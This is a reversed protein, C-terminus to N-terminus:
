KGIYKIKNNLIKQRKVSDIKIQKITNDIQQLSKDQFSIERKSQQTTQATLKLARMSLEYQKREDPIAINLKEAIFNIYTIIMVGDNGDRAYLSEIESNSITIHLYDKTQNLVDLCDLSDAAFAEQLSLAESKTNADPGFVNILITDHFFNKLEQYTM